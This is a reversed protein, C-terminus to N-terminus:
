LSLSKLLQFVGSNSSVVVDLVGIEEFVLILRLLSSVVVDADFSVMDCNDWSKAKKRLSNLLDMWNVLLFRSSSFEVNKPLIDVKYFDVFVDM